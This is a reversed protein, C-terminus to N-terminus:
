IYAYRIKFKLYKTKAHCIYFVVMSVGGLLIVGGVVSGAIIGVDLSKDDSTEMGDTQKVTSYYKNCMTISFLHYNHM